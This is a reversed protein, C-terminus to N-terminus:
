SEDLGRRICTDIWGRVADYVKERDEDTELDHGFEDAIELVDLYEVDLNNLIDTAIDKGIADHDM